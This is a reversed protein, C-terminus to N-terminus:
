APSPTAAGADRMLGTGSHCNIYEYHQAGADFVSVEHYLRLNVFNAVVGMFTVFIRLHTPHSEAWRELLDLSRWHGLGFSKELRRGDLDIFHVYRNSYCGVEGGHDRLFDMGARLTPEIKDLYLEREEGDTESWDQGSRIVCVNDHGAIVVRGGLAPQGHKVVLAGEPKMWDTQSLPLRDRMAGWYGHEEIEGSVGRMIEGVGPFRDRFAYLTEFQDVRPSMIERFYGVGDALRDPSDWWSSVLPASRWREFSTPDDWYAVAIRNDYGNSDRFEVLDYHGPGDDAGFSAAIQRLGALGREGQQEGISQVGFYGMVVQKIAPDARAVFAQYPPRYDDAVRRSLTRPCKLHKDIASEMPKGKAKEGPRGDGLKM